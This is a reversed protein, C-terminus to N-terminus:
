RFTTLKETIANLYGDIFTLYYKGETDNLQILTPTMGEIVSVLNINEVNWLEKLKSADLTLNSEMQALLKNLQSTTMENEIKNMVAKMIPLLQEEELNMETTAAMMLSVVQEGNLRNMGKQLEFAVQTVARIRIDDELEINIGNLAEILSSVTDLDMVVYNDIPLDLLHSVATNVNEAGGYQYAFLLKDYFAVGDNNVALQTYTESPLSLVNISKKEKNYTLLLNLPIRNDMVESKVTILTTVIDAEKVVEIGNAGNVNPKDMPKGQLISPMFLIFCLAVFMFSVTMPAFKKISIHLKRELKPAEELERLQELVSQRDQKTFQLKQDLSHSFLKELRKDEM